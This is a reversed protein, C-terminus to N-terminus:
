PAYKLEHAIKIQVEIIYFSRRAISLFQCTNISLKLNFGKYLNSSAFVAARRILSILGHLQEKPWTASLQYVLVVLKKAEKYVHQEKFTQM